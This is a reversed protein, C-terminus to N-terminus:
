GKNCIGRTVLGTRWHFAFMRKPVGSAPTRKHEAGYARQRANGYTRNPVDDASLPKQKINSARQRFNGYIREQVGGASLRKNSIPHESAPM